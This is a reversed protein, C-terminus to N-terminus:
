WKAAIRRWGGTFRRAADPSADPDRRHPFFVPWIWASKGFRGATFNRRRPRRRLPPTRSQSRGAIEVLGAASFDLDVHQGGPRGRLDTGPQGHRRQQFLRAFWLGGCGHRRLAALRTGGLPPGGGSQRRAAALALQMFLSYDVGTGLILPLAMLNLVNWSWGAMKMVALLCLGSLLLIGLSLCIEALRGFALWLSFLVLGAMPLLLKGSIINSRMWCRRAWCVGARFGSARRRCRGAPGPWRRPM